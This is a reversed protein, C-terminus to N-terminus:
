ARRARWQARSQGWVGVRHAEFPAPLNQERLCTSGLRQALRQSALNDPAICHVFEDWGLNDLAWDIAARTAETAYGQGWAARRFAWGIENGPWGEPRWPGTQGLWEGTARDLVSFMGFGQVFWAGPQQLFRRWAGARPADGGIFRAAEVDALLEAYGDFDEIRPPRLLLRGTELRIDAAIM